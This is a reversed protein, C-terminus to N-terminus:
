VPTGTADVWTAPSAGAAFASCWIPYGLTTDFYVRGIYLNETPRKATTGSQSTAFLINQALSLWNGWPKPWQAFNDAVPLASNLPPLGINDM